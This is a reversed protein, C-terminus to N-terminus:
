DVTGLEAEAAARIRAADEGNLGEVPGQLAEVAMAPDRLEAAKALLLRRLQGAMPALPGLSLAERGWRASEQARDPLAGCSMALSCLTDVDRANAEYAKLAVDYAKRTDGLHLHIKSLLANPLWTSTARDHLRQDIISADNAARELRPIADLPRGMAWLAAGVYYMLDATVYRDPTSQEIALAREYSGSGVAAAVAASFLAGVATWEPTPTKFWREIGQELVMLALDPRGQFSRQRGLNYYHLANDPEEAISLLLLRNNREDKKSLAEEDPLYGWHRISVYEQLVVRPEGTPLVVQEHIRGRFRIGANNRFVRWQRTLWRSDVRDDM